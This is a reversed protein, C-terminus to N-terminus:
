ATKLAATMFNHGFHLREGYGKKMTNMIALTSAKVVQNISPRERNSTMGRAASVATTKM